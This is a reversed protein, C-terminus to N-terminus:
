GVVGVFTVGPVPVAGTLTLRGDRDLRFSSVQGSGENAALLRDAAELLLLHRPARGGSSAHELLSPNGDRDLAFVAVSDHGRNSVYMRTGAANLVIEAAANRGAFGVPLTSLSSLETFCAGPRSRLVTVTNALENVVYARPLEPHLVMHRPGCGPSAQYAVHADGLLADGARFPYAFVADAGLDVALLWRNDPTFLVMHAHSREQRAQNPGHGPHIRLEGPGYPLGTRPDLRWAVISGSSYNAAALASGSRDLAVHCPDDGLTSVTAHRRWEAGIRGFASVTGDAKEDVVYILGLRGDTRAFSADPADTVPAGTQWREGAPDYRLPLLGRGGERNYGGAVLDISRTPVRARLPSAALALGVV